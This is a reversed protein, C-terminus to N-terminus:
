ENNYQEIFDAYAELYDAMAINKFELSLEKFQWRGNKKVMPLTFTRTQMKLKGSKEAQKVAKAWGTDVYNEASIDVGNYYDLQIVDSFALFISDANVYKVKVKVTAKKGKVKTSLVKYSIKKNYKKVYKYVNPTEQKLIATTGFKSSNSYIYRNMKPLDTKKMYTFFSKVAKNVATKSSAANSTVPLAFIMVLVLLMSLIKKKM